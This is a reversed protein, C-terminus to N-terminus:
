CLRGIYKAYRWGRRVAPVSSAAVVASPKATAVLQREEQETLQRQPARTSNTATVTPATGQKGDDHQQQQQGAVLQPWQVVFEDVFPYLLLGSLSLSQVRCFSEIFVVSCPRFLLVRALFAAFCLPVCTGPGNCLLQSLLSFHCSPLAIAVAALCSCLSHINPMLLQTTLALPPLLKLLLQWISDQHARKCL